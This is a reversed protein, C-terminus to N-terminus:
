IDVPIVEIEKHDIDFVVDDYYNTIKSVKFIESQPYMDTLFLSVIHEHLNPVHNSEIYDSEYVGDLHKIVYRVTIM